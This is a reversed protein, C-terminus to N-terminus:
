RFRGGPVVVPNQVYIQSYMDPNEKVSVSIKRGLHKWLKNLELSWAKYNADSINGLFPPSNLFYSPKM